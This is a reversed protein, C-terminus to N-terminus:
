ENSKFMDMLSSLDSPVHQNVIAHVIEDEKEQEIPIQTLGSLHRVLNRVTQEDGFDADKLSNAIEFIDFPNLKAKSKITEFMDNPEKM